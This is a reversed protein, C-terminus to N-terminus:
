NLGLAEARAQDAQPLLFAAVRIGIKALDSVELQEAEHDLLSPTTIRPIVKLLASTEMNFLDSISIGRLEGARPKRLTVAKIETEGRKVPQDLLVTHLESAPDAKTTSTM